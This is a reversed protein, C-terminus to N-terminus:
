QAVERTRRLATAAGGLAAVVLAGLAALTLADPRILPQGRLAQWLVLLFLGGYALGAVLVLRARVEEARLVAWRASLAALLMAFLPLLQLAHMGVFHAIRLDGAETSWGVLPLGPGGDAVGVTHAGAFNEAWTQGPVGTVMLGGSSVGLTSIVVGLRVTWTNVLDTQRETIVLIAAVLNAIMLLGITVGMAIWIAGDLPTSENFHSHRGRAAQFAILAVEIVGAGVLVTGMWWSVRGARHRLSLLWAWTFSYLAFSVAFKLPKVWIPFGDLTRPDLLVLALFVVSLATMAATFLMLPRHWHLM